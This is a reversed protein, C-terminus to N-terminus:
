HRAAVVQRLEVRLRQRRPRTEAVRSVIVTSGAFWNQDVTPPLAERGYAALSLQTAEHRLGPLDRNVGDIRGGVERQLRILEARRPQLIAFRLNALASTEGVAERSLASAQLTLESRPGDVNVQSLSFRYGNVSAPALDRLPLRAIERAERVSVALDLSFTTTRACLSDSAPTPADFLIWSTRTTAEGADGLIQFETTAGSVVLPGWTGVVQYWRPARLTRTSGDRLTLTLTPDALVVQRKAVRSRVGLTISGDAGCSITHAPDAELAVSASSAAFLTTSERPPRQAYAMVIMGVFFVGARALTSVERQSYHWLIVAIGAVLVIAGVGWSSVTTTENPFWGIAAVAFNSGALVLVLLAGFAGAGRAGMALALAMGAVGACVASFGVGTAASVASMTDLGYLWAGVGAAFAVVTAFIAVATLKSIAMARGSVPQSAWWAQPTAAMDRFCALAGILAGGFPLVVSLNASSGLPLPAPQFFRVVPVLALLIGGILVPRGIRLDRTLLRGLPQWQSRNM